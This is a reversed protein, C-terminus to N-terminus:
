GQNEIVRPDSLFEKLYRRVAKADAADPTGLNVLLVGIGREVPTPKPAAAVETAPSPTEAVPPAAVSGEAPAATERPPSAPPAQEAAPATTAVSAAAAPPESGAQAATEPITTVDSM